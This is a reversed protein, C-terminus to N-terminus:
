HGIDIVRKALEDERGNVRKKGEAASPLNRTFLFFFENWDNM